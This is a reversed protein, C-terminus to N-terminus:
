RKSAHTIEMSHLAVVVFCFLFLSLVVVVIVVVVVPGVVFVFVVVVVFVSVFVAVFVVFSHQTTHCPAYRLMLSPQRSVTGGGPGSEVAYFSQDRELKSSLRWTGGARGGVKGSLGPALETVPGRGSSARHPLDELPM